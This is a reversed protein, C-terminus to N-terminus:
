NSPAASTASLLSVDTAYIKPKGERLNVSGTVVVESDVQLRHACKAYVDPFVLVEVAGDHDKLTLFTMPRGAKTAKSQLQSITGSITGMQGDKLQLLQKTSAVQQPSNNIAMNSNRKTKQDIQAIMHRLGQMEKGVVARARLM